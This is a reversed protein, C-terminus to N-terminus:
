GDTGGTLERGVTERIMDGCERLAGDLARELPSTGTAPTSWRDALELVKELAKVLSVSRAPTFYEWYAEAAPGGCATFDPKRAPDRCAFQLSGAIRKAKALESAPDNASM